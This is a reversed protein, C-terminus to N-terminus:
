LVPTVQGQPRSLNIDPGYPTIVPRMILNYKKQLLDIDVLFMKADREFNDQKQADKKKAEAM